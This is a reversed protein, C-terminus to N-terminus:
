AQYTCAHTKTHKGLLLRDESTHKRSPNTVLHVRSLGGPFPRGPIHGCSAFPETGTHDACRPRVTCLGSWWRPKCSKKTGAGRAHAIMNQFGRIKPSGVVCCVCADNGRRHHGLTRGRFGEVIRQAIPRQAAARGKTPDNVTPGAVYRLTM